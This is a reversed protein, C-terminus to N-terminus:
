RANARVVCATVLMAEVAEHEVFTVAHVAVNSGLVASVSGKLIEPLTVLRASFIVKADLDDLSSITPIPNAAIPGEFGMLDDYLVGPLNDRLVLTVVPHPLPVLVVLYTIM